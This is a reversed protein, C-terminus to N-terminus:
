MRLVKKVIARLREKDVRAAELENQAEELERARKARLARLDDKKTAHQSIGDAQFGMNEGGIWAERRVSGSELIGMNTGHVQESQEGEAFSVGRLLKNSASLAENEARKIEGLGELRIKAQVDAFEAEKRTVNLSAKKERKEANHYADHDAQRFNPLFTLLTTDAFLSDPSAVLRGCIRLM